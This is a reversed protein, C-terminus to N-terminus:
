EIGASPHNTESRSQVEAQVQIALRQWHLVAAVLQQEIRDLYATRMRDIEFGVRRHSDLVQEHVKRLVFCVPEEAGPLWLTARGPKESPIDISNLHAIRIALGQASVDHLLFHGEHGRWQLLVHLPQFSAGRPQVRFSRRRNFYRQASAGALAASLEGSPDFRVEVRTHAGQEDIQVLTGRVEIEKQSGPELFALRCQAELACAPQATSDVQFAVGDMSLGLVVVELAEGGIKWFLRLEERAVEVRYREATSMAIFTSRSHTM